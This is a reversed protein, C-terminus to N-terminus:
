RRPSIHVYFYMQLAHLLFENSTLGIGPEPYYIRKQSPQLLFHHINKADKAKEYQPFESNRKITILAFTEHDKM